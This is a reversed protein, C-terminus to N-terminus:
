PAGLKPAYPTKQASIWDLASQSCYKTTVLENQRSFEWLDFPLSLVFYGKDKALRRIAHETSSMEPGPVTQTDSAESENFM